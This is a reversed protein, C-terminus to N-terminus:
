QMGYHVEKSATIKEKLKDIGYKFRSKITTVPIELVSSIEVFSLNDFVRLRIVESQEGPLESLLRELRKYEETQIMKDSVDNEHSDDHLIAQEITLFKLNKRKRQYDICANSISRYLYQKINIVAALSDNEHYLKIFVDQVIDQSDDFCGTRLFPM